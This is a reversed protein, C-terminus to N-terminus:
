SSWNVEIIKKHIPYGNENEGITKRVLEVSTIGIDLCRGQEWMMEDIIIFLEYWNYCPDPLDRKIDWLTIEDAYPFPVDLWNGHFSECASFTDMHMWSFFHMFWGLSIKKELGMPIHQHNRVFFSHDYDNVLELWGDCHSENIEEILEKGYKESLEEITKDNRKYFYGITNIEKWLKVSKFEEQVDEFTEIKEIRQTEYDM